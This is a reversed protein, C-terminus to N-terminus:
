SDPSADHEIVRGGARAQGGMNMVFQIQAVGEGDGLDVSKLDPVVKGLLRLRGEMAARLAGVREKSLPVSVAQEIGTDMDPVPIDEYGSELKSIIVAIAQLQGQGDIADRVKARNADRKERAPALPVVTPPEDDLFTLSELQTDM